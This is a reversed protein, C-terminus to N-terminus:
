STNLVEELNGEHSRLLAEESRRPSAPWAATRLTSHSPLRNSQMRIVHGIWGAAHSFHEMSHTDMGNVSVTIYPVCRTEVYTSNSKNMSLIAIIESM